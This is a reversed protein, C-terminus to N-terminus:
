ALLLPLLKHARGPWVQEVAGAPAPQPQNGAWLITAGAAQALALYDAVPPDEDLL